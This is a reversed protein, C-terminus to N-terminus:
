SPRSPQRPSLGEFSYAAGGHEGDVPHSDQEYGAAKEAQKCDVALPTNPENSQQPNRTDFDSM